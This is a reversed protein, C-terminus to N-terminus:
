PTGGPRPASAGADAEGPGTGAPFGGAPWVELRVGTFYADLIAPADAGSRARAMAGEQCMGVGHGFGVGM